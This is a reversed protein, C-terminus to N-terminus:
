ARVSDVSDPGGDPLAEEHDQSENANAIRPLTFIFRAGGGPQECAAITGGHAEVLRRCIALGLGLGGAGSDEGAQVYPEFIRERDEPDVGPGDDAVSIEILAAGDDTVPLARASLEITCGSETYKLANTLLNTLVQEVRLRDFRAVLGTEGTVLLRVEHDALMQEFLQGVGELVPEIPGTGIELIEGGQAERSAELLNGVFASLRQCGKTSEELFRRQESTLPGVEETLLLRNYGNIFTIPTRLEHSVVQLLHERDTHEHRIRERLSEVERNQEHLDRGLEFMEEGLRRLYTVDEVAYIEPDTRTEPQALRFIATRTEGSEHQLLCETSRAGVTDPLEVAGDGLWDALPKGELADLDACGVMEIWKPNAWTVLGGRLAVVGDSLVATLREL